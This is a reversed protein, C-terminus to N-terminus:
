VPSANLEKLSACFRFSRGPTCTGLTNGSSDVERHQRHFKDLTHFDAVQFRDVFGTDVPLFQRAIRKPGQDLLQQDIAEEM